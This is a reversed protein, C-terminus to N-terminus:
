DAVLTGVSRVLVSLLLECPQLGRTRRSGNRIQEKARISDTIGNLSNGSIGYIRRVEALLDV